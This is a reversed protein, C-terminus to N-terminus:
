TNLNVLLLIIAIAQTIYTVGAGVRVLGPKKYVLGYAHLLRSTTFLTVLFALLASIASTLELSLIILGFIPVQETGNAHANIARKLDSNGGDGHGIQNKIRLRSVNIALILLMLGNSVTFLIFWYVDQM